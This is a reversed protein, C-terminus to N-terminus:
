INGSMGQYPEQLSLVANESDLRPLLLAGLDGSAFRQCVPIYIYIDIYSIIIIYMVYICIHM